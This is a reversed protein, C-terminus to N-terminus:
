DIRYTGHGFMGMRIMNNLSQTGYQTSAIKCLNTPREEISCLMDMMPLTLQPDFHKLVCEVVFAGYQSTAL